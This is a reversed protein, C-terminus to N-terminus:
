NDDTLGEILLTFRSKFAPPRGAQSGGDPHLCPQLDLQPIFAISGLRRASRTQRDPRRALLAPTVNVIEGGGDQQLRVQICVDVVLLRSFM